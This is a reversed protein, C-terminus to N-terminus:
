GDSFRSGYRPRNWSQRLRVLSSKDEINDPCAKCEPLMTCRNLTPMETGIEFEKAYCHCCLKEGMRQTYPVCSRTHRCGRCHFRDQIEEESEQQNVRRYDIQPVIKIESSPCWRVGGNDAQLRYARVPGPSHNNYSDNHYEILKEIGGWFPAGNRHKQSRVWQPGSIRDRKPFPVRPDADAKGLWEAIYKSALEFLKENHHGEIDSESEMPGIDSAFPSRYEEILRVMQIFPRERVVSRPDDPDALREWMPGDPCAPNTVRDWQRFIRLQGPLLELMRDGNGPAFIYVSSDHFPPVEQVGYFRNIYQAGPGTKFWAFHAMTAFTIAWTYRPHIRQYRDKDRPDHHYLRLNLGVEHGRERLQAIVYDIADDPAERHPPIGWGPRGDRPPSYTYAEMESQYHAVEERTPIDLPDANHRIM